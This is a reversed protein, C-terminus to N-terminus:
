KHKKIQGSPLYKRKDEEHKEEQTKEVVRITVDESNKSTVASEKERNVLFTQAIGFLTSTGWYLGVGAPLSATFFAIMVPMTYTMTKNMTNMDPMNPASAEAPKTEPAKKM